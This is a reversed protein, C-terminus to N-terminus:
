FEPVVIIPPLKVPINNWGGLEVVFGEEGVVDPEIVIPLTLTITGGHPIANLEATIDVNFQYSTSASNIIFVVEHTGEMEVGFSRFAFQIGTTTRTADLLAAGKVPATDPDSLLVTQKLNTVAGIASSVFEIGTVPAIIYFQYVNDVPFVDIVNTGVVVEYTDYNALWLHDPSAFAKTIDTRQPFTVNATSTTANNNAYSDRNSYIIKQTDTNLVIISYKGTLITITGGEPPLATQVYTNQGEPYILVLIGSPIVAGDPWHTVIQLDEYTAPCDPDGDSTCGSIMLPLFLLISLTCNKIFSRANM